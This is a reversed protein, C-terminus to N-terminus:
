SDGSLEQGGSEMAGESGLAAPSIPHPELAKVEQGGGVFVETADM